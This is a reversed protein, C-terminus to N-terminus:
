KWSLFHLCTAGVKATWVQVRASGTARVQARWLARNVTAEKYFVVTTRHGPPVVLEFTYTVAQLKIVHAAIGSHM